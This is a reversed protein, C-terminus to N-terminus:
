AGDVDCAGADFSAVRRQWMTAGLWQASAGQHAPLSCARQAAKRRQCGGCGMLGAAVETQAGRTHMDLMRPLTIPSASSSHSLTQQHWHRTGFRALSSGDLKLWLRPPQEVPASETGQGRWSIHRRWGVGSILACPATGWWLPSSMGGAHECSRKLSVCRLRKFRELFLPMPPRLKPLRDVSGMDGSPCMSVRFELSSARYGLAAVKSRRM